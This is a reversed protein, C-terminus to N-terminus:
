IKDKKLLVFDYFPIAVSCREINIKYKSIYINPVYGFIIYYNGEGNWIIPKLEGNKVVQLVYTITNDITFFDKNGAVIFSNLKYENNETFALMSEKIKGISNGKLIYLFSDPNIKEHIETIMISQIIYSGGIDNSISLKRKIKSFFDHFLSYFKQFVDKPM